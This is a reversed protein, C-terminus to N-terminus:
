YFNRGLSTQFDNIITQVTQQEVNTLYQAYFAFAMTKSSSEAVTFSPLIANNNCLLSLYRDFQINNGTTALVQTGNKYAFINTSSDITATINGSIRDGVTLPNYTQLNGFGIFASGTQYSVINVNNSGQGGGMEYGSTISGTNIYMGMTRETPLNRADYQTNAGSNTNNGTMGSVSHTMGGVMTLDYTTGSTRIGMISHSASTGGVFPYMLIMKSYLGATKLDVFLTDTAASITADTTGGAAVVDALYAAADADFSVGSPTPTPTMTPTVTPTNTPTVSPTPPVGSITKAKVPYYILAKKYQNAYYVEEWLVPKGNKDIYPM